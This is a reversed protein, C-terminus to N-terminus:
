KIEMLFSPLEGIFPECIKIPISSGNKTFITTGIIEAVKVVTFSDEIFNTTSYIIYEGIKPQWLEVEEFLWGQTGFIDNYGDSIYTVGDDKFISTFQFIHKHKPVRLWDNKKFKTM